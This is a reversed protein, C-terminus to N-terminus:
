SVINENNQLTNDHLHFTVNFVENLKRTIPVTGLHALLRVQDELMNQIGKFNVFLRLDTLQQFFGRSTWESSVVCIEGM